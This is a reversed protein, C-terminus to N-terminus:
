NVVFVYYFLVSICIFVLGFLFKLIWIIASCKEDLMILDKEIRKEKRSLANYM